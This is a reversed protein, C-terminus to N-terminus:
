TAAPRPTPYREVIEGLVNKLPGLWAEYHRWQDVSDAYLPQRVQESSITHVVRRNEYFRLCQEEFPLGCYDLVKQLEGQPDAVLQEYHVRHVRGPLVADFHEMLAVYDRYYRGLEEL